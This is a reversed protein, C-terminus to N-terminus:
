LTNVVLRSAVFFLHSILSLVKSPWSIAAVIILTIYGLASRDTKRDSHTLQVIKRERLRVTYGSTRGILREESRRWRLM